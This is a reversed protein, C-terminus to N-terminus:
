DPIYVISFFHITISIGTAARPKLPQAEVLSVPASEIAVLLEAFCVVLSHALTLDVPEFM